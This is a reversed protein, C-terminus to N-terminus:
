PDRDRAVLDAYAAALREAVPGPAAPLHRGDITAIPQVERTSSSLFAEDVTPLERMPIDREAAPLGLRGALELLLARTVGLLCGAAPPPTLLTGAAVVFVNSGTAECLNGATNALLAEHAGRSEAFALARVNAAYSLSKLGALAGHENRTWPAVVVEAPGTRPVFPTAAVITTPRGVDRRSSGLPAEGGTITIRVRADALGNADLVADVAARLTPEPLIALGFAAASEELRVLHRRWAFPAGDYARLTEFAGVGVTLGQDLPSVRAEPLPVLRDDVWLVPTSARTV